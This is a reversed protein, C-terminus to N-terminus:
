KFIVLIVDVIQLFTTFYNIYTANSKLIIIFLYAFLFIEKFKIINSGFHGFFKAIARSKILLTKTALESTPVPLRFNSKFIYLYSQSQFALFSALDNRVVM